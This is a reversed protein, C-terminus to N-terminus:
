NVEPEPIHHPPAAPEQEAAERERQCRVCLDAFPLARLRAKPIPRGCSECLGYTRDDIRELAREVKRLEGTALQAYDHAMETYLSETALDAADLYRAGSADAQAHALETHMQGLLEQRRQLLMSRLPRFEAAQRRQRGTQRTKM